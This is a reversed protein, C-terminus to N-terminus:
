GTETPGRLREKRTTSAAVMTTPVAHVPSPLGVLEDLTGLTVWGVPGTFTTSPSNSSSCTPTTTWRDQAPVSPVMVMSFPDSSM